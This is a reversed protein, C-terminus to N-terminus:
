QADEGDSSVMETARKRRQGACIVFNGRVPKKNVPLTLAARVADYARGPTAIATHLVVFLGDGDGNL